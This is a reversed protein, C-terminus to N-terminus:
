RIDMNDISILALNAEEFRESVVNSTPTNLYPEIARLPDCGGVRM